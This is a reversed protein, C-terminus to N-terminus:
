IIIIIIIHIGKQYDDANQMYMVLNQSVTMVIKHTNQLENIVHTRFLIHSVRSTSQPQHGYSAPPENFLKCIEM